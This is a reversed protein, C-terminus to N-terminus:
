TTNRGKGDDDETLHDLDQNAYLADPTVHGGSYSVTMGRVAGVAQRVNQHAFPIVNSMLVGLDRGVWATDPTALYTVAWGDKQKDAIAKVTQEKTYESSANEEGDTLIVLLVKKKGGMKEIGKMIADYLPTWSNPRYTEETLLAVKSPAADECIYRMESKNFALVTVRYQNEKDERLGKIYENFGTITEGKVVEMSATQDLVLMVNLKGM